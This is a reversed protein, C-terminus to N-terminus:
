SALVEDIRSRIRRWREAVEPDPSQSLIDAAEELNGVLWDVQEDLEM